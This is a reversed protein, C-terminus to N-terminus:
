GINPHFKKMWKHSETPWIKWIHAGIEAIKTDNYTDQCAKCLMPSAFFNPTQSKPLRSVLKGIKPIQKVYFKLFQYRGCTICTELTMKVMTRITFSAIM